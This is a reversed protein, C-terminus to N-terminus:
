SPFSTFLGVLGNIQEAARDKAERMREAGKRIDNSFSTLFGMISKLKHNLEGMEEIFLNAGIGTWIDQDNNQIVEVSRVIAELPRSVEEEIVNAQREIAILAEEVLNGMFKLIM